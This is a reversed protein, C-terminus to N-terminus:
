RFRFARVHGATTAVTLLGAGYHLLHVGASIQQRELQWGKELGWIVLDGDEAVSALRGGPLPCLDFVPGQHGRLPEQEEEGPRWRRIKGEEDGAYIVGEVSTLSVIAPLGRSGALGEGPAVGALDWTQLGGGEDGAVALGADTVLLAPLRAQAYGWPPGLPHAELPQASIVAGERRLRSPVVRGSRRSLLGVGVEGGPAVALGYFSGGPTGLGRVKTGSRGEGPLDGVRIVGGRAYWARSGDQAVHLALLSGPRPASVLVGPLEVPGGEKLSWLYRDGGLLPGAGRRCLARLPLEPRGKQAWLPELRSDLLRVRYGTGATLIRGDELFLADRASREEVLGLLRPELSRPDM